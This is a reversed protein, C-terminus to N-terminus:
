LVGKIKDIIRKVISKKPEVVQSSMKWKWLESISIEPFLLRRLEIPLYTLANRPDGIVTCFNGHVHRFSCIIEGHEKYYIDPTTKFVQHFQTNRIEFCKHDDIYHVYKDDNLYSVDVCKNYVMGYKDTYKNM